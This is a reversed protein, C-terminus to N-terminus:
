KKTKNQNSRQNSIEFLDNPTCELAACLKEITKFKIGKTNNEIMDTISQYDSELQQILWYKSKNKKILLNKVNMYIM